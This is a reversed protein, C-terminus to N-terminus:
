NSYRLKLILPPKKEKIQMKFCFPVGGTVKLSVTQGVLLEQIYSDDGQFKQLKYVNNKINYDADKLEM